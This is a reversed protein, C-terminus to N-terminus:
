PVRARLRVFVQNAITRAAYVENSRSTYGRGADTMEWIGRPSMDSLLGREKMRLRAFRTRNRWRVEGTGPGNEVFVPGTLQLPVHLVQQREPLGEREPRM